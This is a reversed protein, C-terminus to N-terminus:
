VYMCVYMRVCMCVRLRLCKYICVTSYLCICTCTYTYTHAYINVCICVCVCADTNTSVCLRTHTNPPFVAPPDAAGLASMYQLLAIILGGTSLRPCTHTYTHKHIHIYTHTYIHLIQSSTSGWSSIHIAALGHEARRHYVQLLDTYIYSRHIQYVYM